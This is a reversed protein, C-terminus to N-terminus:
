RRFYWSFLGLVAVVLVLVVLYIPSSVALNLTLKVFILVWLLGWLGYYIKAILLARYHRGPWIVVAILCVGLMILLINSDFFNSILGPKLWELLLASIYTMFLAVTLDVLLCNWNYKIDSPM